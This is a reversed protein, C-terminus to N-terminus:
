LIQNQLYNINYNINNHKIYDYKVYFDVPLKVKGDKLGGYSDDYLKHNIGSWFVSSSDISNMIGINHQIKIERIDSAGLLHHWKKNFNNHLHEDKDLLNRLLSLCYMRNFSIDNTGTERKFANPIGLISYGIIDIDDDNVMQMWCEIWGDVDNELSQPVSMIGIEDSYKKVEEKFISTSDYTKQWEKFPYDPAVIYDAKFNHIDILDFIEKTSLPRKFEFASNDLIITKGLKYQSKYYEVYKKDKLLHALTLHMHSNTPILELYEIPAIYCYQPSENQSLLKLNNINNKIM